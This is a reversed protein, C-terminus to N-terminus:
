VLLVLLLVPPEMGNNVLLANVFVLPPAGFKDLQAHLVHTDMGTLDLLALLVFFVM